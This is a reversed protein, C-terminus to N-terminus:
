IKEHFHLKKKPYKSVYQTSTINFRRDIEDVIQSLKGNKSTSALIKFISESFGSMFINRVDEGHQYEQSSSTKQQDKNKDGCINVDALILKSNVLQRYQALWDQFKFFFHM